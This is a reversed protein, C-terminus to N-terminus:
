PVSVTCLHGFARRLYEPLDADTVKTADLLRAAHQAAITKSAKNLRLPKYIELAVTALPRRQDRWGDLEVKADSEAKQLKIADPWTKQSVVAACIAKHMIEAMTWSAAALDYELTWNDSVFTKVPGSDEATLNAIHAVVADQTMEASCKLQGRMETSTGKPVLDRDRICAVSVPIQEGDRQFIRSYRFLGVTGVNVVSVGSANFPKGVAAALAPVLIVEADGEVVAVARAFFLNAKTVDLFRTLFAYDGANLHTLDRALRFTRGRAVMTLHEVPTSSAVNPSHTTVIVQVAPQSGSKGPHARDQLLDMVRTQLQPHLHAEPEEILLLPAIDSTGLLLLEAAMFLANNYGLGRRTRDGHASALTLELRELARILSADGSVSIEGRLRDAGIAFKKLYYDNIDDRAATVAANQALKHEARRMIGVLTSATDAEQDFDDIGQEKILPYGAMIQSLRSGRGARLEAEADRLPRLYTAKLLERATGDLTPGDANPGTRTSVSVRQPLLPNMIQAQVTVHLSVTGDSDTTLLELFTAQEETSLDAFRCSITIEDARGQPSVHFDDRTIRHFETATTMLCLRIADVIASKGSDNEGVLVNTGPGFELSLRLDDGSDGKPRSGFIRFNEARVSRLYM